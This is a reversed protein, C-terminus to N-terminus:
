WAGWIDWEGDTARFRGRTKRRQWIEHWPATQRPLPRAQPIEMVFEVVRSRPSSKKYNPCLFESSLFEHDGFALTLNATTAFAPFLAAFLLPLFM